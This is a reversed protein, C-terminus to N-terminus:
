ILNATRRDQQAIFPPARETIENKEESVLETIKILKKIFIINQRMNTKNSNASLLIQHHITFIYFYFKSSILNCFSRTTLLDTDDPM